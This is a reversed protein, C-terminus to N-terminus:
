AGRDWQDVVRNYANEWKALAEVAYRRNNDEYWRSGPSQDKGSWYRLMVTSAGGSYSRGRKGIIVLPVRDSRARISDAMKTGTRGTATRAEQQWIPVMVENAIAISAQRLERSLERPMGRLARLMGDLDAQNIQGSAPGGTSRAM